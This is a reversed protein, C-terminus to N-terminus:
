NLCQLYSLQFIGTAIKRLLLLLLLLSLTSTKLAVILVSIKTILLPLLLLLDLLHLIFNQKQHPNLNTPHHTRGIKRLALRLHRMLMLSNRQHNLLRLCNRRHQHLSPLCEQFYSTSQTSFPSRLLYPLHHFPSHHDRIAWTLAPLSLRKMLHLMEHSSSPGAIDIEYLIVKPILNM